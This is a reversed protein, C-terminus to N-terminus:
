PIALRITGDAPSASSLAAPKLQAPLNKNAAALNSISGGTKNTSVVSSTANLVTNTQSATQNTGPVTIGSPGIVVFPFNQKPSFTSPTPAPGDDNAPQGFRARVHRFQLLSVFNITTSNGSTGMREGGVDRRPAQVVPVPQAAKAPKAAVQMPMANTPPAIPAPAPVAVLKTRKILIVDPSAPPRDLHVLLLEVLVALLAAAVLLEALRFARKLYIQGNNNM